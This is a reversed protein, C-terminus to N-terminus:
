LRARLELFGLPQMMQAEHGRAVPFIGVHHAVVNAVLYAGRLLHLKAKQKPQNPPEAGPHQSAQNQSTQPTKKAFPRPHKKKKKHNKLLDIHQKQTTPTIPPAKTVPLM